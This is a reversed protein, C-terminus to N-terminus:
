KITLIMGNIMFKSSAIVNRISLDLDLFPAKTDFSNAKNISLYIQGVMQEFYPSNTNLLDDLYRSTSNFTEIVHAQNNDSLSVIFDGEYCLFFLDKVLLACNTSMPIGIIQRYVKSGVRIVINDLLYRLADCM